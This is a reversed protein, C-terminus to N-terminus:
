IRASPVPWCYLITVCSGAVMARRASGEAPVATVEVVSFAAAVPLMLGATETVAVGSGPLTLRSAFMREAQMLWTVAPATSKRDRKVAATGGFGANVALKPFGLKAGDM